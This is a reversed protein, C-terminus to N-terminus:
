KLESFLKESESYQERTNVGIGVKSFPITITIVKQNSKIAEKVIYNIYYEETVPSRKIKDINEKLFQYDFAYFGANLEKIELQTKTCDKQEVMDVIKGNEGRIIRGWKLKNPNDNFCTLLVASANSSQLNNTMRNVINEDYFMMHDGYGVVVIHPNIKLDEIKKIATKVADGTGLQKQQYAYIINRKGIVKKVSESFAGIVVITEDMTKQFLEVGYLIMPKGEFPLVVKNQKKSNMRTGQGAALIIGVQM